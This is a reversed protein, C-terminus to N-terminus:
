KVKFYLFCVEIESEISGIEEYFYPELWLKIGQQQLLSRVQILINDIHSM